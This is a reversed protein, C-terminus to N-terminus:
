DFPFFKEQLLTMPITEDKKLRAYESLTISQLNNLVAYELFKEIRHIFEEVEKDTKTFPTCGAMLSPSHFFMNLVEYGEKGMTKALDVMKEWETVEPSLWIKNIGKIKDLLGHIEFKRIRRSFFIRFITNKIDFGTQLFGITPPVEMIYSDSSSNLRIKYVKTSIRSYDPGHNSSWDMYPTVSSDVIYNLKSLNELVNEDCAWRGSRFSVPEMGFSKYITEHLNEIKKYQLDKPLNCLMSNYKNKEEEFPPTNFPHLHTGIECRKDEIMRRLISIANRDTAAPYTLLYTPKIRYRDFLEQLKFLKNIHLLSTNKNEFDGWNDEEVDITIIFYMPM